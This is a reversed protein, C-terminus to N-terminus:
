GRVEADIRAVDAAIAALDLGRRAPVPATVWRADFRPQWFKFADGIVADPALSSWVERYWGDLARQAAAIEGDFRAGLALLFKEHVFAPVCWAQNPSCRAHGLHNRPLAGDLVGHTRGLPPVRSFRPQQGQAGGAPMESQANLARDHRIESPEYPRKLSPDPAGPAGGGRMHHAGGPADPAGGRASCARDIARQADPARNPPVTQVDLACDMPESQASCARDAGEDSPEAFRHREIAGLDLAYRVAGRPMVGESLILGKSALARLTVQVARRKLSTRRELTRVAPYANRGGNDCHDALALLVLRETPTVTRPDLQWVTQLVSVAM